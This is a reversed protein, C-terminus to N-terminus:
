PQGGANPANRQTLNREIHAIADLKAQADELQKRLRANEDMESQLRRQVAASHEHEPREESSQSLKENEAKLELEANIQSLEVLTVARELPQLAEPQAALERLLKRALVPDRAPHGPTALLLAYRLKASGQPTRDYADRASVFIEAQEAPAAQALRQMTQFTGAMFVAAVTDRDETAHEPHQAPPPARLGQMDACGGLALCGCLVSLVLSTSRDPRM